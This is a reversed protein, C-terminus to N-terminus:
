DYEVLGAVVCLGTPALHEPMYEGRHRGAYSPGARGARNARQEGVVAVGARHGASTYVVPDFVRRVPHRYEVVVPARVQEEPADTQEQQPVLPWPPPGGGLGPAPPTIPPLRDPSQEM